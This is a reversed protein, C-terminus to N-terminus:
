IFGLSLLHYDKVYIHKPLTIMIVFYLQFLCLFPLVSWLHDRDAIPVSCTTM